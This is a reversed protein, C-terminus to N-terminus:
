FKKLWKIIVGQKKMAEDQRLRHVVLANNTKISIPKWGRLKCYWTMWVVYKFLNRLGGAQRSKWDLKKEKGHKELVILMRYRKGM